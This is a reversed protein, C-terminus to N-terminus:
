TPARCGLAGYATTQAIGTTSDVRDGVAGQINLQMLLKPITTIENSKDDVKQQALVLRNSCAWASVRHIASKGSGKDASRRLCEGDMAIMSFTMILRQLVKGFTDHSPIGNKFNLVDVFWEKKAKGYAEIAM